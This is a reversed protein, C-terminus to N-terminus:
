GPTLIMTGTDDILINLGADDVLVTMTVPAPPGPVSGVLFTGVGSVPIGNKRVYVKWFGLEDLEDFDFTYVAYTGGDFQGAVFLTASQGVYAASIVLVAGSPKTFVLDFPLALRTGAGFVPGTGVFITVGPQDLNVLDQEPVGIFISPITGIPSAVVGINQGTPTM